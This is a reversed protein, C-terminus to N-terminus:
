YLIDPPRKPPKYKKGEALCKELTALLTEPDSPFNGFGPRVSDNFTKEYLPVVIVLKKWIEAEKM